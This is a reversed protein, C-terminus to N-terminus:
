SESGAFDRLVDDLYSRSGKEIGSKAKERVDNIENAIKNSAQIKVFDTVKDKLAWPGGFGYMVATADSTLSHDPFQFTLIATAVFGTLGVWHWMFKNRYKRYREYFVGEKAEYATYFSMLDSHTKIGLFIVNFALYATISSLVFRFLACGIPSGCLINFLYELSM